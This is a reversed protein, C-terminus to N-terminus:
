LIILGPINSLMVVILIAPHTYFLARLNAPLKIICKTIYSAVNSNCLSYSSM